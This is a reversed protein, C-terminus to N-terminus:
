PAALGFSGAATRLGGLVPHGYDRAIEVTTRFGESAPARQVLQDVLAQQDDDPRPRASLDVTGTGFVAIYADRVEATAGDVDLVHAPRNVHWRLLVGVAKESTFVEGFRAPRPGSPPTTVPVDGTGTAFLRNLLREMRQVAFGWQAQRLPDSLRLAMEMRHVSRWSRLWELAEEDILLPPSTGPRVEGLPRPSFPVAKGAANRLGYLAIRGRFTAEDHANRANWQTIDWGGEPEIGYRGFDERYAAPFHHQYYALFAALEGIASPGLSWHFAGLELLGAGSANISDFHGQCEAQAVARVVRFTSEDNPSSGPVPRFHSLEMEASTWLDEDISVPGGGGAGAAALFRGVPALPPVADGGLEDNPILHRELNDLAFLRRTPDREEDRAWVDPRQIPGLTRGTSPARSQIELPNVVKSTDRMPKNPHEPDGVPALWLGITTATEEDVVGHVPGLYRRFPKHKFPTTVPPLGEAWVENEAAAVQLERVAMATRGDFTGSAGGLGTFGLDLLRTQLKEVHKGKEPAHVVGGHRNADDSDGIQLVHGGYDGLNTATAWGGIEWGGKALGNQLFHHFDNAVEDFMARGWPSLIDEDVTWPTSRRANLLVARVDNEIVERVDTFARPGLTVTGDAAATHDIRPEARAVFLHFRNEAHLERRTAPVRGPDYYRRLVDATPTAGATAARVEPALVVADMDGLLDEVPCRAAARADLWARPVALDAPTSPEDWGGGGAIVKSREVGKKTNYEEWWSGLDGAWSLAAVPPVGHAWLYAGGLTRTGATLVDCLVFVHSIDVRPRSGSDTVRLYGTRALAEITPRPIHATTFPAESWDGVTWIVRNFNGQYYLLRIRQTREEQDPIAREADALWALYEQLSHTYSKKEGDFAKPGNPWLQDPEPRTKVAARIITAVDM